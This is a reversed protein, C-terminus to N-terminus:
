KNFVHLLESALRFYRYRLSLCGSCMCSHLTHERKNFLLESGRGVDNGVCVSKSPFLTLGSGVKSVLELGSWETLIRGKQPAAALSLVSARFTFLPWSCPSRRPVNLCGVRGAAGGRRAGGNGFLTRTFVDPWDSADSRLLM